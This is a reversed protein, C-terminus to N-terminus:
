IIKSKIYEVLIQSKEKEDDTHYWKWTFTSEMFGVREKMMSIQSKLIEGDETSLEYPIGLQDCISYIGMVDNNEYMKSAMIYIDNLRVDSIKDPHTKKAIVRYIKRLKEDVVKEVITIETSEEEVAPISDIVRETSRERIMEDIKRNIKKDFMEKLVINKELFDNLSRMFSNDAEFVIENKYEFDSKVYDLEKLLRRVELQHLKNM